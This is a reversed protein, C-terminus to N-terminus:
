GARCPVLLPLVYARLFAPQHSGYHGGHNGTWRVCADWAHQHLRGYLAADAPTEIVPEFGVRGAAATLWRGDATGVITVGAGLYGWDRKSYFVDIGGRVARLAPRLDYGASLSPALLVIRDVSDPPLAEAAALVVETGASHGLLYVEGGPCARRYEAVRRALAEGEARAHNCDMQDALVRLFGHSWEVREVALPAHTEAVAERLPATTAGWGGAGDACFIVGRQGAALVPPACVEHHTVACGACALAAPL